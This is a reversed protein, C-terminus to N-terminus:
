GIANLNGQRANGARRGTEVGLQKPVRGDLERVRKAFLNKSNRFLVGGSRAFEALQIKPQSFDEGVGSKGSATLKADRRLADFQDAIVALRNEMLAARGGIKSGRSRRRQLNALWRNDGCARADCSDAVKTGRIHSETALACREDRIHVIKKVAVRFEAADRQIEPAYGVNCNKRTGAFRLLHKSEVGARGVHENIREDRTERVLALTKVLVRMEGRLTATIGREEVFEHEIGVQLERRGFGSPALIKAI